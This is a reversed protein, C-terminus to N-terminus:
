ARPGPPWSCPNQNESQRKSATHSPPVNCLREPHSNGKRNFSLRLEYKELAQLPGGSKVDGDKSHLGQEQHGQCPLTFGRLLRKSCGPGGQVWKAIEPILSNALM